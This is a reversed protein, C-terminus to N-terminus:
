YLAHYLKMLTKMYSLLYGEFKMTGDCTPCHYRGAKSVLVSQCLGCHTNTLTWGHLMLEGTQKIAEERSM